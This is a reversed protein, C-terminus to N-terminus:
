RRPGSHKHGLYATPDGALQKIRSNPEHLDAM